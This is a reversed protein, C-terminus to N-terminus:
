RGEHDDTSSGAGDATPAWEPRAGTELEIVPAQSAVRCRPTPKPRGEGNGFPCASGGRHARDLDREADGRLAIAHEEKAGAPRGPADARKYELEDPM